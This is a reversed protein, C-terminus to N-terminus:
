HLPNIKTHVTDAIAGPIKITTLIGISRGIMTDIQGGISGIVMGGIYYNPRSQMDSILANAIKEPYNVIAYKFGTYEIEAEWRNWPLINNHQWDRFGSIRALYDGYAYLSKPLSMVGEFFDSFQKKANTVFSHLSDNFMFRFAGSWAGNAFKGGTIQSITGAVFASAAIKAYYGRAMGTIPSLMTGAFGAWFGSNWRGGRARSM